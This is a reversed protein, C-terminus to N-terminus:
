DGKRGYYWIDTLYVFLPFLLLITIGGCLTVTPGFWTMVEFVIEMVVGAIAMIVVYGLEDKM